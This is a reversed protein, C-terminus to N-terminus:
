KTQSEKIQAPTISGNKKEFSAIDVKLFDVIKSTLAKRQFWAIYKAKELVDNPIKFGTFTKDPSIEKGNKDAM